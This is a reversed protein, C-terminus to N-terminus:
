HPACCRFSICSRSRLGEHEWPIVSCSLVHGLFWATQGREAQPTRPFPVAMGQGTQSQPAENPSLILKQGLRSSLVPSGACLEAGDRTCCSPFAPSCLSLQATPVCQVMGSPPIAGQAQSGPVAWVAGNWLSPCCGTGPLRASCVGGQGTWVDCM